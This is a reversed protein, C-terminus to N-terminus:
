QGVRISTVVGNKVEFSFQWPSYTWLKAGADESPQEQKAQGLRSIVSHEPDGLTIGSFRWAGRWPDGTLQVSTPRGSDAYEILVYTTVAQASGTQLGYFYYTHGNSMVSTNPGGLMAEIDSRAMYLAIPGIRLCPADAAANNEIKRFDEPRMRCAFGAGAREYRPLPDTPATQSRAVVPVAIVVCAMAFSAALSTM